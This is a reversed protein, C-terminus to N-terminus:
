CLFTPEDCKNTPLSNGDRRSLKVIVENIMWGDREPVLDLLVVGERKLHKLKATTYLSELKQQRSAQFSRIDDTELSPVSCPMTVGCLM